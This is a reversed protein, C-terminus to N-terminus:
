TDFGPRREDEAEPDGKYGSPYSMRLEEATPERKERAEPPLLASIAAMIAVTDAELDTRALGVPGGVTVSVRPPSTVNTINPVKASRPWVKETGWIGVPIVPAGSAQALRAAGWRGKLV